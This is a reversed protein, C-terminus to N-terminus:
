EGRYLIVVFTILPLLGMLVFYARIMRDFAAPDDDRTMPKISSKGILSRRDKIVGESKSKRIFWLFVGEGFLTVLLWTLWPFNEIV